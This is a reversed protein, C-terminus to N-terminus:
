AKINANENELCVWRIPHNNKLADYFYKNVYKSAQEFTWDDPYELILSADYMKPPDIMMRKM